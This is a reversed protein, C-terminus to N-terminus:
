DLPALTTHQIRRLQKRLRNFQRRQQPTMRKPRHALNRREYPDKKLDYMEWQAKKEGAPDYYKALKWRRERVSVIRNPPPVYSQKNAQGGQWDDFTFVIRQQTKDKRKRLVHKSYDVGAWDPSQAAKPAEVLAALTPLLDVHSVLEESTRPAPFLEPNSYVMPVRLTEEYFNFNKQQMTHALGMEGHDSTRVVVTSNLQGTEELKELIEVLYGDVLKMLNGYFNLYGLREERTEPRGLATMRRVFRRQAKPKTWLNEDWTPPLGIDGDFWGDEPLYGAEVYTPVEADRAGPYFLVDHPNVLSVILCWPKTNGVRSELFALVGEEGAEVPGDDHMYRDDHRPSDPNGGGQEIFQNAGGDPPNWRDFGFRSLDEPAWDDGIPKSLHWKGKYAVDYGAGKMVTALNAVGEPFEHQDYGDEAPMDEELTSKVGHQAPYRGTLLTARSPSCMCTNCFANDFSVGNQKLRTLGPLNEQEWGEPFHQIKREQDTIFILINKGAASAVVGRATSTATAPDSLEAATLAIAPPTVAAAELLRRRTIV